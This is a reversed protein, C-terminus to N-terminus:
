LSSVEEVIEDRLFAHVLRVIEEESYNSHFALHQVCSRLAMIELEGDDTLVRSPDTSGSDGGVSLIGDSGVAINLDLKGALERVESEVHRVHDPGRRHSHDWLQSSGSKIATAIHAAALVRTRGSRRHSRDNSVLWCTAIYKLLQGPKLTSVLSPYLGM